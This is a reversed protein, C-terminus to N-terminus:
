HNTHTCFTNKLWRKFKSEKRVKKKKKKGKADMSQSVPQSLSRNLPSIDNPLELPSFGEENNDFSYDEDQM